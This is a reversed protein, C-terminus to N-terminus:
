SHARGGGHGQRGPARDRRGRAAEVGNLGMLAATGLCVATWMLGPSLAAWGGLRAVWESGFRWWGAAMSVACGRWDPTAVLGAVAPWDLRALWAAAADGMAGARVPLPFWWGLVAAMAVLAVAGLALHLRKPWAQFGAPGEARAEADGAIREVLRGALGPGPEERPLEGFAVTLAALRNAYGRCRGCRELHAELGNTLAQGRDFRERLTDMVESCCM